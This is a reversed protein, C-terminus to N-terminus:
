ISNGKFSRIGSASGAVKKNYEPQQVEQLSRIVGLVLSVAWENDETGPPDEANGLWSDKTLDRGQEGAEPPHQCGKAYLLMVRIEAEKKMRNLSTLRRLGKAKCFLHFFYNM